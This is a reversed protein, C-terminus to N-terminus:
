KKPIFQINLDVDGEIGPVVGTCSYQWIDFHYRFTPRNNYQALWLPYDVLKSLDLHLYFYTLNSYVMPQYGAAKVAECFAVTCQTLTDDDLDETRAHYSDPYPEWDYVIPYTISYGKLADFCFQAEAVAEEPTIAQSFFYVGVEIGNAQAEQINKQFYNDLVMNGSAGYGRYGLRILAFDVGADKVAKWDINYQYRSVDVGVKCSYDASNYTLFGQENEVFLDNDYTNPALDDVIYVKEGGWYFYEGEEKPSEEPAQAPPDEPEEGSPADALQYMRWIVASMESRKINSDPKFYTRGNEVSGTFIGYDYLALVTKDTTDAFPTGTGTRSLNLTRGIIQAISLRSIPDDLTLSTDDPLFGKQAALRYYGSAWHDTTPSQEKYDAALLIMKLAQGLTVTGSPQFSTSTIGNIVGSGYLDSVYLYFWDNSSVDSFNMSPAASAPTVFLLSCLLLSLLKQKM